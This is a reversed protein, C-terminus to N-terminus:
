RIRLYSANSEYYTYLTYGDDFCNLNLIIENDSSNVETIRYFVFFVENKISTYISFIIFRFYKLHQMEDVSYIYFVIYLGSFYVTLIFLHFCFLMNNEQSQYLHVVLLIGIPLQAM